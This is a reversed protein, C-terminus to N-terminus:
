RKKWNKTGLDQLQRYSSGMDPHSFVSNGAVM